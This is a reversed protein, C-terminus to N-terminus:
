SIIQFPRAAPVARMGGPRGQACDRLRDRIARSTNSNDALRLVSWGSEVLDPLRNGTDRVM